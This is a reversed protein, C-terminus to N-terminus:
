SAQGGCRRLAAGLPGGERGASRRYVYAKGERKRQRFRRKNEDQLARMEYLERM